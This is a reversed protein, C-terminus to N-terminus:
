REVSSEDDHVIIGEKKCNTITCDGGDYAIVVNVKKWDSFDPNDSFADKDHLIIDDGAEQILFYTGVTNIKGSYIRDPEADLVAAANTERNTM